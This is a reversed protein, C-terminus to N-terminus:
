HQSCCSWSLAHHSKEGCFSCIHAHNQAHKKPGSCASRGSINFRICLEQGDPSCLKGDTDIKAWLPKGDAFKTKERPHYPLLHDKDACLVCSGPASSPRTGAEPFPRSSTHSPYSNSLASFNRFRSEFQSLLKSERKSFEERQIANNKAMAYKLKYHDPDYAFNHRRREQRLEFEMHKWDEYYREADPQNEFFAFHKRWSDTWSLGKPSNPDDAQLTDKDQLAQFRLMQYAAEM